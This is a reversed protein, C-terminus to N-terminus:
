IEDKMGRAKMIFRIVVLMLGISLVCLIISLIQLTNVKSEYHKKQEQLKLELESQNYTRDVYRQVTYEKKDVQYFAPEGDQLKAYVLYMEAGKGVEDQYAKISIGDIILETEEYGKPIQINDSDVVVYSQNTFLMTDNGDKKCHVNLTEDEEPVMTDEPSQTDEPTQSSEPSASPEPSATNQTSASEEQRKVYIVYDKKEGNEAVVSIVIKNEGLDLKEGGTVTAKAKKSSTTPSIKISEVSNKVEVAYEYTTPHFSPSLTGASISIASLKTDAKKNGGIQVIADNGSVSLGTGSEYEYITPTGELAVTTKGEKLAKFQLVYKKKTTGSEFNSDSLVLNGNSGHLNSGGGVFELLETDYTINAELDGLDVSSSITMAISFTDGVQINSSLTKCDISASAAFATNQTLVSIAFLMIMTWITAQIRKGIKKM